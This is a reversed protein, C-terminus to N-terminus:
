RKIRKKIEALIDGTGVSVQEKKAMDRFTVKGAKLEDEGIIIAFDAKNRDAARMQSKLSAEKIDTFVFFGPLAMRIEEAIQIGKLKAQDGLTAVCIVIFAKLRPIEQRLALIMRETGLAYGVAGTSSGGLDRVLSDYRGGAGIADQAGLDPHTVEFVTGTYYDLGRVISKDEEFRVNLKKLINKLKEFHEGCAACLSDSMDPAERVVQKCSDNKCDLVRLTNKTLRERCDKCLHKKKDELFKQLKKAFKDKDNKCGLTNLKITFNKLGFIELMKSLQMIVEADAYASHTGFAEVGIQHFQRSRGKQPRESRFMPGIYYFKQEPSIKDFSHEIYARVIPATGEPRLTLSRGKRDKFTYMEKTVIDTNEGISGTFIATDELIPTRIERYGYSELLTRAIKELAQWIKVDEPLIDEMGRVAKYKM